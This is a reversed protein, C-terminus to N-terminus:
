SVVEDCSRIDALLVSRRLRNGSLVFEEVPRGVPEFTGDPHVVLAAGHPIGIGRAAGELLQITSSLAQWDGKEDHVDVIADLLGFTELLKRGGNTDAVSAYRGLQVAGASVGLLVAGERYRKAISERLGTRTFVNWGAEVDGGALVIVDATQLFARDEDGVEARVWRTRATAVQEFAAAFIGHADASDGNSAGIYAVNPKTNASAECVAALFAGSKWFLPQSDAFLYLPRTDSASM